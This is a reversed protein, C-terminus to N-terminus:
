VAGFCQAIERRSAQWAPVLGALVGVAASLLLGIGVIQWDATVNVSLGENFLSFKGFHVVGVAVLTGVVGGVLGLIVGETVIMRAILWRRFGLTQLVANEKIRDQVSLVIANAVLALVAALCGWGLYRTFGVIEVIDEGAQAVFAKEPRTHTPDAETRFENDIAAAVRELNSPDDVRVNFQTVVGLTGKTAAQQIFPLHVYAVNQDQAETSRIIGAVTVRVGSSDFAQGARFGYRSALREGVLAADSRRTWDEVSGDVIQWSRSLTSLSEAPVGRFTIVDLSAACNSVVIKMPVVSAVGPVKAIRDGYYEPLRSTAPCFRNERYVVLTTDAATVSTAEHVGHQLAQVGIFLFMAVAVGGVTLLSRTAHRVVQKIVVPMFRPAIM